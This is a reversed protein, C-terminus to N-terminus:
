EPTLEDIYNRRILEMWIALAEKESAGAGLLKDMYTRQYMARLRHNEKQAWDTINDQLQRHHEACLDVQFGERISIQRNSGGFVEHREAGSQGCYLCRRSAKNKWGNAAPKKKRDTPKPFPCTKYYDGM